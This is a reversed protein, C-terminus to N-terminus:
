YWEQLVRACFDKMDALTGDNHFTTDAHVRQINESPHSDTPAGTEREIKIVYGGLDHVLKSENDYRIDCIVFNTEPSGLVQNRIIDAWTTPGIHTRVGESGLKQMLRRVEPFKAKLEEYTYMEALTSLRSFCLESDQYKIEEMHALNIWPDTALLIEWLATAFSVKQFPELECFMEGMTDKGSRKCACIGIVKRM